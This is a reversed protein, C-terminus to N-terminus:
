YFQQWEPVWFFYGFVQHGIKNEMRSVHALDVKLTLVPDALAWPTPPTLPSGWPGLPPIGVRDAILDSAVVKQTCFQTGLRSLLVCHIHHYYHSSNQAGQIVAIINHLYTHKQSGETVRPFTCHTPPSVWQPMHTPPWEVGGADRDCAPLHHEQAGPPRLQWRM